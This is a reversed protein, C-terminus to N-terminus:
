AVDAAFFTQLHLIKKLLEIFFFRKKLIKVNKLLKM